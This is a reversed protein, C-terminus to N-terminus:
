VGAFRDPDAANVDTAAQAVPTVKTRVITGIILEGVVVVAAMQEASLKLGFLGGLYLAARIVGAIAVPEKTSMFIKWATEVASVARYLKFATIPNMM